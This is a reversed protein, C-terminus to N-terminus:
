EQRGSPIMSAKPHRHRFSGRCVPPSGIKVVEQRECKPCHFLQGDPGPGRRKKEVDEEHLAWIAAALSFAFLQCYMTATAFRRTSRESASEDRHLFDLGSIRYPVVDEEGRRHDDFDQM